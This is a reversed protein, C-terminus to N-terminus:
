HIMKMFPIVQILSFVISGRHLLFEKILQMIIGKDKESIWYSIYESYKQLVSVSCDVSGGDIVIYEAKEGLLERLVTVNSVVSQITAELQEGNNYNITIVSIKM